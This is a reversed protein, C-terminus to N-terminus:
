TLSLCLRYYERRMKDVMNYGTKPSLGLSLAAEKVTNYKQLAIWLRREEKSLGHFAKRETTTPVKKKEMEPQAIM